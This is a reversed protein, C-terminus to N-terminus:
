ALSNALNSFRVSLLQLCQGVRMVRSADQGIAGHRAAARTRASLDRFSAGAPNGSRDFHVRQLANPEAKAPEFGAGGSDTGALAAVSRIITRLRPRAGQARNPVVLPTSFSRRTGWQTASRATEANEAQGPVSHRLVDCFTADHRL